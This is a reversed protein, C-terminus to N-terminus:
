VLATLLKIVPLGLIIFGILVSLIATLLVAAASIDKGTKVLGNEGPEVLDFLKELSTNFAESIWVLFIALTIFLWEMPSIQLITSVIIVLITAVLHFRSNRENKLLDIIGSFAHTLSQIFTKNKHM